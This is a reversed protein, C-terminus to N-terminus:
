TLRFFGLMMIQTYVEEEIDEPMAVEFQLTVNRWIM